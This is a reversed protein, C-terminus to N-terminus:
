NKEKRETKLDSECVEYSECTKCLDEKSEKEIKQNFLKEIDNIIKKPFDKLEGDKCAKKFGEFDKNKFYNYSLGIMEMNRIKQESIKTKLDNLYYALRDVVRQVQHMSENIQCISHLAGNDKEDFAIIMATKPNLEILEGNEEFSIKINKVEPMVEDKKIESM